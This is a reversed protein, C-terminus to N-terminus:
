NERFELQGQKPRPIHAYVKVIERSKIVYTGLSEDYQQKLQMDAELRDGMAFTEGQAVRQLFDHDQMTASVDNGDHVFRWAAVKNDLVPKRIYLDVRKTETCPDHHAAIPNMSMAPFDTRESTFLVKRQSDRVEYREVTEDADLQRFQRELAANAAANNQFINVAGIHVNITSNDNAKVIAREGSRVIESPQTGKLLKKLKLLELYIEISKRLLPLYEQACFITGVIMVYVDMPVDFSGSQFPRVRLGLNFYSKQELAIQEFVVVSELLSVGLTRGEIESPDKGFHLHILERPLHADTHTEGNM